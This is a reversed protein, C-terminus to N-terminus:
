SIPVKDSSRGLFHRKEKDAYMAADAFALLADANRGNTPFHGLGISVGVTVENGKDLPIPRGVSRALRQTVSATESPSTLNDLLIAFEDGGIRAVTDQTRVEALLREAIVQLVADGAAHGQTDNITKFGDLDLMAVVFSQDRPRDVIRQRLVVAFSRRNLLSTLPDRAAQREISAGRRVLLMFRVGILGFLILTVISLSIAAFTTRLVRARAKNVEQFVRRQTSADLRRYRDFLLKGAALRAVARPRNGLRTTVIEKTFYENLEMAVHLGQGMLGQLDPYRQSRSRLCTLDYAFQRRGDDYDTLFQPDGSAVYARVGTEENVLALQSDRQCFGLDVLQTSVAVAANSQLFGALAAGNLFTAVILTVASLRGVKRSVSQTKTLTSTDM